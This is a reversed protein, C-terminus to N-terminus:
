TPGQKNCTAGRKHHTTIYAVQPFCPMTWLPAATKNDCAGLNFKWVKNKKLGCYKTTTLCIEKKRYLKGQKVM